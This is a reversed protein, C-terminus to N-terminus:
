ACRMRRTSWKLGSTVVVSAAPRPALVWSVLRHPETATCPDHLSIAQAEVPTARTAPLRGVLQAIRAAWAGGSRALASGGVLAAPGRLRHEVHGTAIHHEASFRLRLGADNGFTELVFLADTSTLGAIAAPGVRWRHYLDHYWLRTVDGCELGRVAHGLAQAERAFALSHAFRDDYVAAHIPVVPAGARRPHAVQAHACTLLGGALAGATLSGLQLFQRRTLACCM